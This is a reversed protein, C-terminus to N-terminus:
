PDAFVVVRSDIGEDTPDADAVYTQTAIEEKLSKKKELFFSRIKGLDFGEPM